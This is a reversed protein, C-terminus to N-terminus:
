NNFVLDDYDNLDIFGGKDEQNKRGQNNFVLGSSNEKKNSTKVNVVPKKIKKIADEYGRKYEEKKDQEFQSIIQEKFKLFFAAEYQKKPDELLEDIFETYEPDKESVNILSPVIAEMIEETNEFGFIEKQEAIENIYFKRMENLEKEAEQQAITNNYEQINQENEIFKNRLNEAIKNFTRNNKLTHLSELIEQETCDPCKSELDLKVIEDNTMNMISELNDSYIPQEELEGSEQLFKFIGEKGYKNYNEVVNAIFNDTVDFDQTIVPKEKTESVYNDYIDKLQNHSLKSIEYSNGNEDEIFENGFFNSIENIYDINEPTSQIYDFDDEPKSQQLLVTNIDTDNNPNHNQIIDGNSIDDLSSSLELDDLDIINSEIENESELHITSNNM